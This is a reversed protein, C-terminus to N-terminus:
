GSRRAFRVRVEELSLFKPNPEDLRRAVGALQEDTLRYEAKDQKEMLVLM